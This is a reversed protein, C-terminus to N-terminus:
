GGGNMMMVVISKIQTAVRTYKMMEKRSKRENEEKKQGILFIEGIAKKKERQCVLMRPYIIRENVEGRKRTNGKSTM